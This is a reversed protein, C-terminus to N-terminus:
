FGLTPNRRAVDRRREERVAQCRPHRAYVQQDCHAAECHSSFIFNLHECGRRPDAAVVRVPTPAGARNATARRPPPKPAPAAESPQLLEEGSALSSDLAVVQPLALPLAPLPAPPAPAAAAATLVVGRTAVDAPRAPVKRTVYAYWGVFAVGVLLALLAMRFWFTFMGSPLWLPAAGAPRGARAAPDGAPTQSKMLELVSPGTAAFAPLKGACGLCFMASDRNGTHCVSCIVPM